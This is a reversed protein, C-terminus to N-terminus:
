SRAKLPNPVYRPVRRAYTPYENPFARALVGEEWRIRLLECAIFYIVALAGPWGATALNVGIAALVEGLYVPHRSLSYPGGTVLRRAEPIISFSRRLYALGWVSYALGATALIDAVLVLGERRGGGPLFPAAIASFTGTFAIFVVAMRHDTGRKPLRTSYLIVLMTFYALALLQQVLFLYDSSRHVSRLGDWVFLLQRALFVSFFLAPLLRSFVLDRWYAGSRKQVDEAVGPRSM